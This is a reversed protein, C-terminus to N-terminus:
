PKTTELVNRINGEAADLLERAANAGVSRWHMVLATKLEGGAEKLVADAWEYDSGTLEMFIRRARARLKLSGQRLDVMLNEYCKGLRVMSATTLMNLVLKTATGAKLRTSGTLVEPGVPVSIVVDLSSVQFRFGSASDSEPRRPVSPEATEAKRKGSEAKEDPPENCILLVTKAGRSKAYTLAGLVYPTRRSATIGVLVDAENLTCVDLDHAAQAFDDEAGEVARFVADKGGAIFGQVLYPETGFTPPCEAADLVGLRGSTGAGVYILRGGLHFCSVILEVAREIDPIARAVTEPVTRDEANMAALIERTSMSDLGLTRPNRAETTLASLEDVIRKTM